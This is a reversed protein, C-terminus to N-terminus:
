PGATALAEIEVRLSDAGPGTVEYWGPLEVNGFRTPPGLRYRTSSGVDVRVPTKSELDIWLAPRDSIEFDGSGRGGLVWCDRGRDIGLQVQTPDGGLERLVALVQSGSRAQLWALPPLLPAAGGVGSRAAIAPSATEESESGVTRIRSAGGRREHIERHGDPYELELRGRGSPDIHAEGRALSRGESDAVQVALRLPAARKADRNQQAILGALREPPPLWAVADGAALALWAAGLASLASRVRARQTM